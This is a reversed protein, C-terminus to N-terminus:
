EWYLWDPGENNTDVINMEQRAQYILQEALKDLEQNLKHHLLGFPNSAYDKLHVIRKISQYAIDEVVERQDAFGHKLFSNINGYVVKSYEKLDNTHGITNKLLHQMKQYLNMENFSLKCEKPVDKIEKHQQVENEKIATTYTNINNKINSTKSINGTKLTNLQEVITQQNTPSEPSEQIESGQEITPCNFANFIYLNTSQSNDKRITNKIELLGIDNAKKIARRLSSLSVGHDPVDKLKTAAVIKKMGANCVGAVKASFRILRKIAILETATFKDKIETMWMEIHNNFDKLNKFNSYSKFETTPATLLSM